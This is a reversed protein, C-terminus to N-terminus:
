PVSRAQNFRFSHINFGHGPMSVRPGNAVVKVLTGGMKEPRLTVDFQALYDVPRGRYLYASYINVRGIAKIVGFRRVEGQDAPFEAVFFDEFRTDGQPLATLGAAVRQIPAHFLYETPNAAFPQRELEGSYLVLGDFLGCLVIFLHAAKM